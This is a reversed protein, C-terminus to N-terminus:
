LIKCSGQRTVDELKQPCVQKLIGLEISYQPSDGSLSYEAFDVQIPAPISLFKFEYLSTRQVLLKRM